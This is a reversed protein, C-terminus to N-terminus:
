SYKRCMNSDKGFSIVGAPIVAASAAAPLEEPSSKMLDSVCYEVNKLHWDKSMRFIGGIIKCCVKDQVEASALRPSQNSAGGPGPPRVQAIVFPIGHHALPDGVKRIIMTQGFLAKVVKQAQGEAGVWHL